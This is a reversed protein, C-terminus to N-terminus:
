TQISQSTESPRHEQFLQITGRFYFYNFILRLIFHAPDRFGLYVDTLISYTLLLLACVRSLKWVGYALAAFIAADLLIWADFGPAALVGAAVLVEFILTLGAQISAAIWARTVHKEPVGLSRFQPESSSRPWSRSFNYVFLALFLLVQGIIISLFPLPITYRPIMYYSALSVVVSLICVLGGRDYDNEGIRYFIIACCIIIVLSFMHLAQQRRVLFLYAV